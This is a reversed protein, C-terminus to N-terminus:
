LRYKIAKLIPFKETSCQGRFDDLSLDFVAVGGLGNNAVYSAKTAAVEPDDYSIWVGNDGSADAARFAYNGLKRNPDAFRRLQANGKTPQLKVCIEPWSLLGSIKTQTAVEAPGKTSEVVPYGEDKSDLTMKWARGYTAIGVNIKTKPFRQSTWHEVQSDVNYHPLRNGELTPAYLPATYDAEYPNRDPTTFDFAALNVFDIYNNLAPANFYGIFCM